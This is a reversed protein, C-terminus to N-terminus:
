CKRLGIKIEAVDLGQPAILITQGCVTSLVDMQAVFGAGRITLKLGDDTEHGAISGVAAYTKEEWSGSVIGAKIVLNASANITQGANACRLSQRLTEDGANYTAVCKLTELGGSVLTVTGLGTWYGKYSQLPIAARAISACFVVAFTTAIIPRICRM